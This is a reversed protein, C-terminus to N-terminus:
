RAPTEKAHKKKNTSKKLRSRQSIEYASKMVSSNANKTTIYETEDTFSPLYRTKDSASPAAKREDTFLRSGMCTPSSLLAFFSAPMIEDITSRCFIPTPCSWREGCGMGACCPGPKGDSWIVSCCFFCCLTAAIM